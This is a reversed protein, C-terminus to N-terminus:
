EETKEETKPTEEKSEVKEKKVPKPLADKRSLNLRGRNDYGLSVVMIKDGVSVVDSAKEVREHALKSVHVLGECGPWLEVFAGFDEVKVVKGEYKVGTEVERVINKIMEAAKSIVSRDTHYIIVQGNEEVDIKVANIDQVTEVNSSTCIINTITEGGKGIVDKIRDPSIMFTEIKPAYPSVDKRPEPICAEMVDLIEM